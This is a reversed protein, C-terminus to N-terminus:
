SLVVFGSLFRSQMNLSVEQASIGLASAKRHAPINFVLGFIISNGKDLLCRCLNSFNEHM